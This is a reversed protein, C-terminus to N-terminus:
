PRRKRQSRKKKPPASEAAAATKAAEAQAEAKLRQAEAAKAVEAQREAAQWDDYAVIDTKVGCASLSSLLISFALKLTGLKM